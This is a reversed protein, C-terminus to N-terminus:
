GIGALYAGGLCLYGLDTSFSVRLGAALEPLRIVRGNDFLIADRFAHEDM